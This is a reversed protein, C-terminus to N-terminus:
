YSDGPDGLKAIMSGIAFEATDGNDVAKPTTLAAWFEGVGAGYTASTVYVWNSVTGWSASAQPFTLTTLNAVQKPAAGTATGWNTTNRTYAQRAYSGANACEAWGTLAEDDASPDTTGLAIHSATGNNGTRFYDELIAAEREDVWGAMGTQDLGLRRMFTRFREAKPQHTRKVLFLGSEDNRTFVLGALPFHLEKAPGLIVPTM